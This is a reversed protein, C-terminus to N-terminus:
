PNVAPDAASIRRVLRELLLATDKGGKRWVHWASEGVGKAGLACMLLITVNGWTVLGYSALAAVGLPQPFV